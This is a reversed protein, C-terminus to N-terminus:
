FIYSSLKFCITNIFSDFYVKIFHNLQLIEAVNTKPVKSISMLFLFFINKKIKFKRVDVIQWKIWCVMYKINLYKHNSMVWDLMLSSTQFSWYINKKTWGILTCWKIEFHGYVQGWRGRHGFHEIEGPEGKKDKLGLSKWILGKGRM